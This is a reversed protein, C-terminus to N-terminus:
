IVRASSRRRAATPSCRQRPARIARPRPARRGRQVAVLAGDDVVALERAAHARERAGRIQQLRARTARGRDHHHDVLQEDPLARRAVRDHRRAKRGRRTPCRRSRRRRRRRGGASSTCIQRSVDAFPRRGYGSTAPSTHSMRRVSTARCMGTFWTAGFWTSIGAFQCVHGHLGGSSGSRRSVSSGRVPTGTSTTTTSEPYMASPGITGRM